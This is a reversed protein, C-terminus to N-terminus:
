KVVEFSSDRSTTNGFFDAAFSRLIYNGPELEGADFFSERFYDGHVDNSAIYNFVTQPTYGSQSGKAYVFRVADEDPLRDFSITWKIESLPSKDAKLIQYGVRYVGLKRYNANGNMRDFARVVIRTKGALKIRQNTKETEIERWNEDFLSVKEITPAITDSINPFILADLANMEAGSRGAILHVHNMSNLTGIAEDAEFKTGRPIRLGNLKKNADFSFQFRRDGFFRDDRDRGFRIHIYGLTPLRILERKTAFNEV